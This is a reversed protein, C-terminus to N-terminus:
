AAELHIALAQAIDRRVRNLLSLCERVGKADTVMLAKEPLAAACAELSPYYWRARWREQGADKGSKPIYREYVAWCYEDSVLRWDEGISIESM